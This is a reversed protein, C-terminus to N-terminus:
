KRVVRLERQDPVYNQNVVQVKCVYLGEDTVQVNQVRLRWATPSPKDLAWRYADLSRTATSIQIPMSDARTQYM